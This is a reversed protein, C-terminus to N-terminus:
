ANIIEDFDVGTKTAIFSLSINQISRSPKIYIDCRFEGRDIVEPTNVREDVVVAYEYVGRRGKIDRLFPEVMNYFRNRTFADNFEFLSYKSATAIAKEMVIFLRRVNIYGFASPKITFTKDGYLLTGDGKTTMVSNIGNKYLEDRQAKTPQFALKQVNKIQGRNYGAPSWWPDNTDDVRACLGAIDGNLPLWRYVDNYKDFQYKYNGDMVGYTTAIAPKAGVISVAPTGDSVVNTEQPSFFAVCDKRVEAVNQVVYQAVAVSAAGTILLNVDFEEPNAMIDWSLQLAADDPADDLGQTLVFNHGNHAVATNIYGDILVNLVDGLYWLDPVLDPTATTLDAALADVLLNSADIWIYESKRNVVTEIYNTNGLYDLADVNSSVTYKEVIVGDYMVVIWIDGATDPAYEFSSNYNWNDWVDGATEEYAIEDFGIMSVTVKNGYVGPYKAIVAADTITAAEFADQNKIQQPTTPVTEDANWKACANMAAADISRIVNLNGSYALFNAASWWDKANTNNPLGFVKVLQDESAIIRREDVPGWEFDGVIGGISTAVAPVSTTLDIEQVDISPSLSFGM